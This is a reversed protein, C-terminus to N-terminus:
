RRLVQLKVVFRVLHALFLVRATCYFLNAIPVTAYYAAAWYSIESQVSSISPSSISADCGGGGSGGGGGGDAAAYRLSLSM